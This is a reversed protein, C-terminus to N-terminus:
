KRKLCDSLTRRLEGLDMPKEICRNRISTPVRALASGLTDGTMLIFRGALHPHHAAIARYLEVGDGDAMRIDSIVLDFPQAGLLALAEQGSPATAVRYGDRELSDQLMACIEEEDDVVLIAAEAAAAALAARAPLPAPLPTGAPLWIAFRAGGGPRDGVVIHGGHATIISKCLSLGIGTGVGTPKTTFFPEFIPRAARPSHRPRQRRDRAAAGGANGTLTLWIRRPTPAEALAQQANILLNLIVLHLRDEEGSVVPIGSDMRREVEIGATSLSHHLMDLSGDVLRALEVPGQTGTRQRAMALFSKVIRGCREAAARLRALPVALEPYLPDEEIMSARGVVVSLPGNLEHAVGALLSGLAAIKESQHLADRQREIEAEARRRDSLDRLYAAFMREGALRLEVIALEIPFITGDSRMAEIEIRRGVMRSQGTAVLRALGATHADRLQPPVIVEGLARGIVDTRRHGFVREAAPNFERLAGSEDMLIVCDLAADVVARGVADAIPVSPEM